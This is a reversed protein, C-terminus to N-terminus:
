YVTNFIEMMINEHRPSTLLSNMWEQHRPPFLSHPALLPNDEYVVCCFLAEYFPFQLKKCIKLFQAAFDWFQLQHPPYWEQGGLECLNLGTFLPGWQQLSLATLRLALSLYRCESTLYDLKRCNQTFWLRGLLKYPRPWLTM